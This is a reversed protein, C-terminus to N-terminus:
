KSFVFDSNKITHESNDKAYLLLSTFQAKPQFPSHTARPIPHAASGERKNTCAWTLIGKPQRKFCSQNLPLMQEPTAKWIAM